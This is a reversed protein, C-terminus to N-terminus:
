PSAAREPSRTALAPTTGTLAHAGSAGGQRQASRPAAAAARRRSHAGSLDAPPPATDAAAPSLTGMPSPAESRYLTALVHAPVPRGQVMYLDKLRPDPAKVGLRVQADYLTLLTGEVQARM